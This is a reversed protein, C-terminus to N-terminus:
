RSRCPTRARGTATPAPAPSSRRGRRSCRTPPRARSRRPRSCRAPSRAPRPRPASRRAAPGRRRSREPDPAFRRDEHNLLQWGAILIRANYPFALANEAAVGEAPERTMLFAYLAAIDEDAVLTFHDYPFVPYLYGGERDVGQRMARAFAELSWRGIGQEPDPTINTSYIVGFPTETSYGGAYDAGGQTTHCSACNGIGALMEGRAVLAADFGAPDPPEIAAIEGHRAAWLWAGALALLLLAALALLSRKLM